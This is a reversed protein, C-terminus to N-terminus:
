ASENQSSKMIDLFFLTNTMNMYPIVWLYGICLSCICLIHLPIFSLHIYLLRKKNGKMIKISLKLLDKVSTQPFDLLLFYCQSLSLEIVFSVIYAVIYSIIMCVNWISKPDHSYLFSFFLYPLLCVGGLLLMIASLATSKKFHWRFGCLIDGLAYHKGCAINLYFYAIGTQLVGVLIINILTIIGYIVGYSTMSAVYSGTEGTTAIIIYFAYIVSLIMEVPLTIIFPILIQMIPSVLMASGYKGSLKERAMNKLESCSKYHQM